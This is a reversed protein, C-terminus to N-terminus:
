ERAVQGRLVSVGAVTGAFGGTRVDVSVEVEESPLVPQLFKANRVGTVTGSLHPAILALVEDLLLVGPVVPQGPFHGPLSPHEPPVSFRGAVQWQASENM